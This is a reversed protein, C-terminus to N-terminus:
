IKPPEKKKTEKYLQVIRLVIGLSLFVIGLFWSAFEMLPGIEFAFYIASLAMGFKGFVGHPSFEFSLVKALYTM